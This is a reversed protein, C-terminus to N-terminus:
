IVPMVPTPGFVAPTALVSKKRWFTVAMANQPKEHISQFKL